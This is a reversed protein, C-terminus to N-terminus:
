WRKATTRNRGQIHFPLTGDFHKWYLLRTEMCGLGLTPTSPIRGPRRCLGTTAPSGTGHSFTQSFGELLSIPIEFTFYRLHLLLFQYELIALFHSWLMFCIAKDDHSFRQNNEIYQMKVNTLIAGQNEVRWTKNLQILIRRGTSRLSLRLTPDDKFINRFKTRMKAGKDLTSITPVQTFRPIEVVM